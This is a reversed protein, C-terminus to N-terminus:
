GVVLLPPNAWAVRKRSLQCYEESIDFGLYHRGNQYAMKPTTGSGVFPDLVLDGPNSWSLIHDRALAEPFQGPHNYAFDDLTTKSYGSKIKWISTKIKTEKTIGNKNDWGPALEGNAQRYSKSKRNQGAYISKEMIPNFTAPKGKSWIFMYEFCAQYRNDNMPPKDTQYIMTDHLNFGCEMAWLAQNFSTGTESGNITADAVVWVVVGGPKTVRYLQRIIEHWDLTFGNYDRLNDYPPSTVTLDICGDPLAALMKESAGCYINNPEYPGLNM